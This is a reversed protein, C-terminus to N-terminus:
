DLWLWYDATIGHDKHFYLLRQMPRSLTKLEHSSFETPGMMSGNLVIMGGPREIMAGSHYHGGMFYKFKVDRAMAIQSLRGAARDLGYYPLGNWSKVADFHEAHVAHGEVEFEFFPSDPIDWTIRDGYNKLLESSFNALLRDFSVKKKKEGKRGYRGHNGPLAINRISEFSHLLDLEFEVLKTAGRFVQQLVDFDVEQSPFISNHTPIMHKGVLFLHSPADTTLCQVPVPSIKRIDKIFHRCQSSGKYAIKQKKSKRPFRFAPANLTFLVQYVTKVGVVPLGNVMHPKSPKQSRTRCSSAGLGVVLEQVAEILAWNTNTFVCQGDSRCNGDSDMLGQLLALRDEKTAGLYNAPVHKQMLVGAKRLGSYFSESRNWKNEGAVAITMGSLGNLRPEAKFGSQAILSTAIDCDELGVAIEAKSTAGDGLWYGLLWPDVPLGDGLLGGELPVAPEISWNSLHAKSGRAYKIREFMQETRVFVGPRHHKRAQYDRAVWPHEGSAVIIEGSKFEIEYCIKDTYVPSKAIVTRVKGLEDYVRDGVGIKGMTTWGEPTKILTDLALHDGDVIDGALVIVLENVPRMTKHDKTITSIKDALLGLRECFVDFNYNGLGGTEAPDVIAGIHWDTALLVATQPQQDTEHELPEVPIDVRPVIQAARLVEETLREEYARENLLQKMLRKENAADIVSQQEKVREALSVERFELPTVPQTIGENRLQRVYWRVREDKVGLAAAIQRFDHGAEYLEKVAGKIQEIETKTGSM